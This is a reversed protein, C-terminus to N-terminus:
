PTPKASHGHPSASPSVAAPTAETVVDSETKPPPPPARSRPPALPKALDADKITTPSHESLIRPRGMSARRGDDAPLLHGNSYTFSQLRQRRAHTPRPATAGTPVATARKPRHTSTWLRVETGELAAASAGAAAIFWDARLVNKPMLRINTLDAVPLLTWTPRREHRPSRGEIQFALSGYRARKPGGDVQGGSSARRPNEFPQSRRPSVRESTGRGVSSPSVESSPSVMMKDMRALTKVRRLGGVNEEGPTAGEPEAPLLSVPATSAVVVGPCSHRRKVTITEGEPLPKTPSPRSAEPPVLASALRSMGRERAVGRHPHREDEEEEEEDSVELIPSHIDVKRAEGESAVSRAAAEMDRFEAAADRFFQEQMGGMKRTSLVWVGALVMLVGVPFLIYSEISLGEMEQFYAVGGLVSVAIYVGQFVPVVFTADFFQLAHALWQQQVIIAVLCLVIFLYPWVTIMMNNGNFSVKLLEATCKAFLVTQAGITGALGSVALPHVQAYPQYDTPPAAVVEESSDSHHDDKPEDPSPVHRLRLGSPPHLDHQKSDELLGTETHVSSALEIEISGVGTGGGNEAVNDPTFLDDDLASDTPSLVGIDIEGTEQKFLRVVRRLVAEARRQVLYMVIVVVLVCVIYAVMSGTTYRYLLDDVSLCTEKQNGFLVTLTAGVVILVTGVYDRAFISEGLWWYALFINVVLTLSGVPTVISQPAMGYSTFDMMSGVVVLIFGSWWKWMRTFHRREKAPKKAEQMFGLKQLQLGANGSITAIASLAVGQALGRTAGGV